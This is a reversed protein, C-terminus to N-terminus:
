TAATECFVIGYANEQISIYSNRLNIDLIINYIQTSNKYEPEYCQTVSINSYFIAYM